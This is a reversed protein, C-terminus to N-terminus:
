MVRKGHTRKVATVEADMVDRELEKQHKLEDCEARYQAYRECKGHCDYTRDPCERNCVMKVPNLAFYKKGLPM